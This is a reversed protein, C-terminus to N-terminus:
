QSKVLKLEITSPQIRVIRLGSQLQVTKELNTFSVIGEGVGELDLTATLLEKRLKMLDIKPGTIELKIVSPPVGAVALQAPINKFAVPVTLSVEGDQRLVVSLWLIVALCMSLAMLGFNDTITDTLKM